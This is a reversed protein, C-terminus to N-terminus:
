EGKKKILDKPLRAKDEKSMKSKIDEMPYRELLEWYRREAIQVKLDEVEKRLTDIEKNMMDTLSATSKPEGGRVWDRLVARALRRPANGRIARRVFDVMVAVGIDEVIIKTYRHPTEPPWDLLRRALRDSGMQLEDSM